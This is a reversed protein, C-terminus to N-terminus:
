MRHICFQRSFKLSQLFPVTTFASEFSKEQLHWTESYGSHGRTCLMCLWLENGVFHTGYEETRINVYRSFLSNTVEAFLCCNKTTSFKAEMYVRITYKCTLDIKAMNLTSSYTTFWHLSFLCAARSYWMACLFLYAVLFNLPKAFFPGLRACWRYM